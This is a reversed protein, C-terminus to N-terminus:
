QCYEAPYVFGEESILRYGNAELYQRTTSDAVTIADQRTENWYLVLPITNPQQSRFIQGETVGEEFGHRAAFLQGEDAGTLFDDGTEPHTSRRIVRTDAQNSYLICSDVGLRVASGDDLLTLTIIIPKLDAYNLDKNNYTDGLEFAATVNQVAAAGAQEDAQNKQIDPAGAQQGEGGSTVPTDSATSPGAVDQAAIAGQPTKQRYVVVGYACQGSACSAMAVGIQYAGAGLANLELIPTKDIATDALILADQANYLGLDLDGCADDCFGAVMYAFGDETEFPVGESEGEGLRHMVSGVFRYGRTQIRGAVLRVEHYANQGSDLGMGQLLQDVSQYQTATTAVNKLPEGGDKGGRMLVVVLAVVVVLALGGAVYVGTKRRPPAAPPSPAAPPRDSRSVAPAPAPAPEAVPPPSVPVAKTDITFLRGDPSRMHLVPTGWEVTNGGALSIAKRAEVVAADVALGDALAEYFVQAFEIAAQDSVEYQMAVVAPIGRRILMSATSSFIDTESAQAGKCANLLALRLSNHDALLRGLKTAELRFTRGADDALALTGEGSIKDFGGHGVFHFVHWPGGRMARQLDRWTQGELWTISILGRSTLDKLAVEMRKKEREVDLAPLDEPSAVMGLIRLPPQISLPEPPRDLELYRIVPTERSLCVFDGETDDYLFEWPLAALDPAEIRLRLRLGKGQQMAKERSLRYCTRVEDPLIASFLTRGFDEISQREEAPVMMDRRTVSSKLLAIEIDKLRSELALDDYPFHMTARREGAPSRVVELPYEAGRREGIKLEFDLYDM